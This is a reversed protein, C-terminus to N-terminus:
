NYYTASMLNKMKYVKGEAAYKDINEIKAASKSTKM